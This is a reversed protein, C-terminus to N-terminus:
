AQEEMVLQEQHDKQSPWLRAILAMTVPVSGVPVAWPTFISGTFLGSVALATIFPWISPGPLRTRHDPEADLV